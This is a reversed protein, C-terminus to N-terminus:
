DNYISTSISVTKVEMLSAEKVTFSFPAIFVSEGKQPHHALESTMLDSLTMTPDQGILVGFQANFEGITMKGPFTKDIIMLKQSSKSKLPASYSIKGFIEELVGSLQVLGITKGAKDLIFAVSENNTRFQKLLHMMTTTESVFWPPRAYERVRHTKSARIADRPYAIAVISSPDHSVIPIYAAGTKTLLKEMDKITANSPLSSVTAIPEMIQKVTKKRVSFINAAIASFEASDRELPNDEGQEELIKQLEEQNLYLNAENSNAGIFYNCIKSTMSILWLLPEMVKSSAYVLPIGLMAVHESYHRAAFMPALEGFIVVLLVQTFPALNPNLGMATYFERSCESGIVLALNVGILTTGFLRSPNQLLSNLWIARQNGKAVYYQLRVKNFSVCAMELMSYFGLVLISLINFVLWSVASITM